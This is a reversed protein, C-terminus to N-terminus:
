NNLKIIKKVYKIDIKAPSTEQIEYDETLEISVKDDRKMETNKIKKGDEDYYKDAVNFYIEIGEKPNVDKIKDKFHKILISNLEVKEVTGHAEVLSEKKSHSGSTSCATLIVLLLIISINKKM